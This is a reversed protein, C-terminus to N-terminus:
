DLKSSDKHLTDIYLLVNDSSLYVSIHIHYRSEFLEYLHIIRIISDYTHNTQTTQILRYTNFKNFKGVFLTCYIKNLPMESGVTKGVNCLLPCQGVLACSDYIAVFFLM